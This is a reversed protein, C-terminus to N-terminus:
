SLKIKFIEESNKLIQYAMKELSVNKIAALKKVVEIVYLPENRKGRYPIPAVYPADTESLIKNLPILKIVKEYNNTFTIVGGFSFFFGMELLKKAEKENGSFFHVIGPPFNLLSSYSNLIKLLDSFAERCHIMLPKKIEKSLKIQSVFVEKQKEKIKEDDLKFYDLGCEGIAIVKEQLALEKYFNYDFEEARSMFGKTEKSGDLEYTDYFSSYTHLPHLGVAAYIEPYKQSIEIAKKSTDKQTGVNVFGVGNTLSREIVKQYDNKFAAFQVHTHSDFYNIKM